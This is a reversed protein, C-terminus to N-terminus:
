WVRVYSISFVDYDGGSETVVGTSYTGRLAHGRRFPWLVTAGFRSNRQLDARKDSGVTTRGGTYYNADLSAWVGNDFQRVLHMETSLIPDQKRTQGLFEDNDGFFWGGLEFELMWGPSFPHIVGLAPKLSWRNTGLNILRDADYQGTPAQVLLSVGVLTTPNQALARFEQPTMAPAGRLNVSVRLRADGLGAVDRSAPLGLYSGETHASSYPLSLQANTTRGFLGFTRQYGLMGVHIQSDVGAVPLSPDTVVDGSSYQYALSLVNTGQPAPWYARPVLEQADATPPALWGGLLLLAFLGGALARSVEAM